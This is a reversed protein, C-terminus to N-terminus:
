MLYSVGFGSRPFRFKVNEPCAPECAGCEVCRQWLVQLELQKEDWLFVASPCVYLCNRPECKKCHKPNRLTIHSVDDPHITVLHLYNEGSM